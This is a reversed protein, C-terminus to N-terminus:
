GDNLEHRQIYQEFVADQNHGAIILLLRKRTKEDLFSLARLVTM